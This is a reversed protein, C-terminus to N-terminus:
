VTNQAHGSAFATINELTTQLIREMAETTNYASHPTLILNPRTLTLEPGISQLREEGEIVDLAAGSIHGSDLAALLAPTDILGGRGTNVVIAGPKLATITEANLLHRTSANLLACLCLVDAHPLLTDLPVYTFGIREAEEPLPNPDCALVEMGFGRAIRAVCRGIRGAGILGLTKGSLDIGRLGEPSFDGSAARSLSVNLKRTLALLLAFTYEAVTKNGYAPVNCVTIGKAKAAELDIHDYGTSRTTILKLNPLATLASAEVRHPVMVSLVETEPPAAAVSDVTRVTFDPLGAALVEGARDTENLGVVTVIM